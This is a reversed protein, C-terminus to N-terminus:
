RHGAHHGEGLVVVAGSISTNNEEYPEVPSNLANVRENSVGILVDLPGAGPLFIPFLFLPGIDM